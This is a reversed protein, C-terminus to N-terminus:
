YIIAGVFVNSLLMGVELYVIWLDVMYVVEVWYDVVGKGRLVRECNM